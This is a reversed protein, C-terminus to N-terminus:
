LGLRRLMYSALAGVLAGGLAILLLRLPAPIHRRRRQPLHSVVASGVASLRPEAAAGVGPASANGADAEDRM